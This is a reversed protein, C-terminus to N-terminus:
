WVNFEWNKELRSKDSSIIYEAVIRYNGQENLTYNLPNFLKDLKIIDGKSLYLESSFPKGIFNWEIGENTYNQKEIYISLVGKVRYGNNVIKSQPAIRKTFSFNNNGYNSDNLVSLEVLFQQWQGAKNESPAYNLEIKEEEGARVFPIQNYSILTYNRIWDSGNYYNFQFDYFRAEVNEADALGNNIITLNFRNNTDVVFNNDTTVYSYIENMGRYKAEFWVRYTNDFPYIENTANVVLMINNTRVPIYDFSDRLYGNANIDSLNKSAILTFVDIYDTGNFESSINYLEVSVNIAKETGRNDISFNIFAKEGVVFTQGYLNYPYISLDAGKERAKLTFEAINDSIKDDTLNAIAKFRIYGQKNATYRFKLEEFSGAQMAKAEKTGILIKDTDNVEFLSVNFSNVEESGDNRLGISINSEEGVILNNYYYYLQINKYSEFDNYSYSKTSNMAIFDENEKINESYLNINRLIYPGNIKSRRIAVGDFTLNLVYIGSSSPEFYTNIYENTNVLDLVGSLTYRGPVSINVSVNVVLKDYLRNNNTDIGYDKISNRIIKSPEQFERYQYAQTLFGEKNEDITNSSESYSSGGGGGGITESSSSQSYVITKLVINRIRYPGNLGYKRLSPLYASISINSQGASLRYYDSYYKKLTAGLFSSLEFEIKYDGEQLVNVGISINMYEYKNDNGLDILQENNINNLSAGVVLIQKILKNNIFYTEQTVPTAEFELVNSGTTNAIFSFEVKQEEGANLTLTKNDKLEGNVKFKLEVNENADGKNKVLVSANVQENFMVKDIANMNSVSIDKAISGTNLKTWVISNYFFQKDNIEADYIKEPMHTFYVSAGNSPKYASVFLDNIDKGQAVMVADKSSNLSLYLVSHGGVSYTDPIKNTLIDDRALLNISDYFDADRTNWLGINANLGFLEALKINNPVLESLTGGTGILGHGEEVYKKIAAIESDKFNLYMGYNGNAWADSIILVDANTAKIDEYTIDEKKLSNYDIEVLYKGYNLWNNNLEDFITYQLKHNGWSDVVVAKIRGTIITANVDKSIENNESFIEGAIEPISAKINYQGENSPAFVFDVEKIENPMLQLEKKATEIGNVFLTINFEETRRGYNKVSLSINNDQGVILYNKIDAKNISVEHEAPSITFYTNLADLIGYGYANDPGAQGKDIATQMLIEKVQIPTLSPNNQLLLAVFGSVMPTAMSTGSATTYGSPYLERPVSSKVSVGVASIEPKIRGDKTPGRSSFGAIELNDDVAGITTVNFASAPIGVSNNGRAGANGAAVIVNIGQAVAYDVAREVPTTGDSNVNAGLSMSIISINYNEKNQIAWEIGSIVQDFSGSGWDDLVKIGVLKAKPAVGRYISGGGTGAAIGSVHTGHGHDDYAEERFNIYDKFGIVKQDNTLSNDDLDDLSEHTADIGTDIVAITVGEGTLNLMNVKDIKMAPIASDLEVKVKYNPYVKKVESLKAIKDAEEKTINYVFGNFIYQYEKLFKNEEIPPSLSAKTKKGKLSKDISNKAKSHEKGIKTQLKKLENGSNQKISIYQKKLQNAKSLRYAKLLKSGTEAKQKYEATDKEIETLKNKISIEKEIIPKEKMEVFYGQIEAEGRAQESGTGVWDNKEISNGEIEPPDTLEIKDGRYYYNRVSAISINIYSEPLTKSINKYLDKIETDQLAKNYFRLEDMAGISNLKGARGILLSDNGDTLRSSYSSYQLEGDYYIRLYIDQMTVAYHHWKGDDFPLYSDINIGRGAFHLINSNAQERYFAYGEEKSLNGSKKDIGFVSVNGSNREGRAWLSITFDNTLDLSNSDPVAIHGAIFNASAEKLGGNGEAITNIDMSDGFGVSGDNENPSSDKVAGQISYEGGGQYSGFWEGTEEDFKYYATLNQSFDMEPECYFIMTENANTSPYDLTVFRKDEEIYSDGYYNLRYYTGTVVLEGEGEQLITAEYTLGSFFDYFTVRDNSYGYTTNTIKAVRLLRSSGETGDTLLIYYNRYANHGEGQAINEGAIELEKIKLKIVNSIYPCGDIKIQSEVDAGGGGESEQKQLSSESAGSVGSIGTNESSFFVPSQFAISLSILIALIIILFIAFRNKLWKKKLIM